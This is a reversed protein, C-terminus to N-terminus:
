TDMILICGEAKKGSSYCNRRDKGRVDRGCKTIVLFAELFRIGAEGVGM